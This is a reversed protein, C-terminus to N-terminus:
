KGTYLQFPAWYFPKRVVDNSHLLSLKASRLAADPPQGRELEDYLHGMLTATSDDNVDWLAGIVNHAGARLFAWSLGILGEGSYAETGAGSCSSITVLNAHLPHQTIDRAYLKFSDQETSSRSLVIASDLPSVKSATAHAVFHIFSFQEPNSALYAAPTAQAHTFTQRAPPAFHNGVNEMERVANPLPAFDPSTAVADGILLLKGTGHEEHSQSAALVRLSSASMVTADEIWYHLPPGSTLAAPKTPGPALLTEFNLSDLSGDTILIVRSNPAILNRAPGVLIDYLHTGDPNAKSLVDQWGLVVARRYRQVADDIETAPPLPFRSTRSATIAWLYSRERGLWYFLITAHAQRAIQQVDLTPADSPSQKAPSQKSLVGLGEALTRARSYDAVELARRDKGQALLFRIYDDYLHAANALFPLKFEEHQLSARATEITALAQQYQKDAEAPRHEEEYLKALDNQAQWRLSLDSKQDNAVEHFVQEAQKYDARGAAVQGSVLLPYLESQRDNMNHAKQFAQESYQQAEILQGKQVSVFALSTLADVILSPTDSKQALALSQKYYEEATSLQNLQYYVLGINNLWAIRYYVTDLDESTKEAEQYMSLARDFDGMKYHAWGLNGLAGDALQRYHLLQARENAQNSWDISEDYREEGIAAQGLNMLDATELYSDKQQQAIQLSERYFREASKLNNQASELVGRARAIEGSMTSSLAQSLKEAEKLHYEADKTQRLLTYSSAKLLEQKVALESHALQTPLTANLLSFADGGRGRSVLVDAELLRFRWAWQQDSSSFLEYGGHAETAARPLDGSHFTQQAHNFLEQPSLARNCGLTWLIALSLTLVQLESGQKMPQSM